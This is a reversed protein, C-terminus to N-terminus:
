DGGKPDLETRTAIGLATLTRATLRECDAGAFQFAGTLVNRIEPDLAQILKRRARLHRTKVTQPPIDLVEATEEISLGEIERLVFVTRFIDSLQAVASELVKAIQRRALQTEPTQQQDNGSMYTERYTELVTVDQMELTRRRRSAARKRQLAENVAIRTLWTALSSRGTFRAGTSFAKIYADQVADEADARNRLISWAARYLRQNHRTTIVRVAIGDREAALESLELDSLGEYDVARLSMKTGKVRFM